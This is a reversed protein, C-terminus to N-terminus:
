FHDITKKWCKVRRKSVEWKVTAYAGSTEHSMLQLAGRETLTPCKRGALKAEFAQQVGGNCHSLLEYFHIGARITECSAFSALSLSEEKQHQPHHLHGPPM